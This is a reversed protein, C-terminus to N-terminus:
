FIGLRRGVAFLLMGYAVFLLALKVHFFFSIPLVLLSSHGPLIEDPKHGDRELEKCYAGWILSKVAYQLFDCALTLVLFMLPWLFLPSIAVTERSAMAEKGGVFLWVIAVGAFALQRCVDSARTSAEGYVKRYDDLTM